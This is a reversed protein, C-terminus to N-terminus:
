ESFARLTLEINLSKRERSIDCSEQNRSKGFLVLFLVPSLEVASSCFTRLLREESSTAETAFGVASSLGFSVALSSADELRLASIAAGGMMGDTGSGSGGGEIEPRARKAVYSAM